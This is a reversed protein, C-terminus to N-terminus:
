SIRSRIRVRENIRAILEFPIEVEDGDGEEDELLDQLLGPLEEMLIDISAAETVLPLDDSEVVWVNAEPDWTARVVIARGM